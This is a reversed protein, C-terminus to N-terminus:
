PLTDWGILTYPREASGLFVANIDSAARAMAGAEDGSGIEDSGCAMGDYVQQCRKVGSEVDEDMDAVVAALNTIDVSDGGASSEALDLNADADSVNGQALDVLARLALYAPEDPADALAADAAASADDNRGLALDAQVLLAHAKVAGPDDQPAKAVGYELRGILREADSAATGPDENHITAVISNVEALYREEPTLEGSLLQQCGPGAYEPEPAECDSWAGPADERSMRRVNGQLIAALVSSVLDAAAKDNEFLALAGSGCEGGYGKQCEAVAAAPDIQWHTFLTKLAVLSRDGPSAAIMADLDGAATAADGSAFHAYAKLVPLRTNNPDKAAADEMSQLAGAPDSQRLHAIAALALVDAYQEDPPTAGGKAVADFAADFDILAYDPKGRALEANGGAANMRFIEDPAREGGTNLAWACAEVSFLPDAALCDEDIATDARVPGCALATLGLFFL